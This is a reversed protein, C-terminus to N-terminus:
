DAWRLLTSLTCVKARPREGSRLGAMHALISSSRSSRTRVAWQLQRARLRPQPIAGGHVQCAFDASRQLAGHCKVARGARGAVFRTWM